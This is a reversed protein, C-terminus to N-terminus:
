LLQLWTKQAIYKIPWRSILKKKGEKPHKEHQKMEDSMDVCNQQNHISGLVQHAMKLYQLSYLYLSLIQAHSSCNLSHNYKMPLQVTTHEQQNHTHPDIMIYPSVKLCKPMCDEEKWQQQINHLKKPRFWSLWITKNNFPADAEDSLEPSAQIIITCALSSGNIDIELDM